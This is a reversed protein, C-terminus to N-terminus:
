PVPFATILNGKIDTIVKIKSTPNGGFKLASNGIIQGTDAIREFLGGGLDRVPSNVVIKSQLITKLSEPSVTFISRSNALPRNFHDDLVHSFGAKGQAGSKRFPTSKTKGEAINIRTDVSAELFQSSLDDDNGSGIWIQILDNIASGSVVGGHVEVAIGGPILILSMGGSPVALVAGTGELAKGGTIQIGGQILGILDALTRGSKFWLSKNTKVEIDRDLQPDTFKIILEGGTENLIFQTTFGDAFELTKNIINQANNKLPINNNLPVLFPSGPLGAIKVSDPKDSFLSLWEVSDFDYDYISSSQSIPLVLGSNSLELNYVVENPTRGERFGSSLFHELPNIGAAKVDPNKDLYYSTDFLPSPDRGERWGSANYHELPNIGAAKVDPNKDLYYSTDFLPSPDRGERWGSANYHELPNIQAQAVDPNKWLYYNSNFNTINNIPAPQSSSTNQPNEVFSNDVENRALNVNAIVLNNRNDLFEFVLKGNEAGKFSGSDLLEVLTPSNSFSKSVSIVGDVTYLDSNISDFIGSNSIINIANNLLRPETFGSGVLIHHYGTEIEVGAISQIEISGVTVELDWDGGSVSSGTFDNSAAIDANTIQSLEELFAVGFSDSAVNCGYVLIDAEEGLFNSWKQLTYTYESLTDSDLVTNGLTIQGNDGHSILHVGDIAEYKSLSAEIQAVGDLLPDLVVIETAGSINDILVERDAVASDIFVIEQTNTRIIPESEIAM